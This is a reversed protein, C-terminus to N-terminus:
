YDETTKCSKQIRKRKSYGGANKRMENLTEYSTHNFQSNAFEVVEEFTIGTFWESNRVRNREFKDHIVGELTRLYTPVSIAARNICSGGANSNSLSRIRQKIDHTRGVKIDKRDNELIYIYWQLDDLKPLDIYNINDYVKM